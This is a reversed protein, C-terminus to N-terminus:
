PAQSRHELHEEFDNLEAADKTGSNWYTYHYTKVGQFGDEGYHHYWGFQEKGYVRRMVWYWTPVTVAACGHSTQVQVALSATTGLQDQRSGAVKLSVVGELTLGVEGQEGITVSQTVTKTTTASINITKPADGPFMQLAGGVKTYPTYVRQDSTATVHEAPAHVRMKLKGIRTVGDLLDLATVSVEEVRPGGDSMGIINDLSYNYTPSIPTGNEGNM